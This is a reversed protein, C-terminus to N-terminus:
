ADEAEHLDKRKISALFVTWLFSCAAIFPVRNREPIFAFNITQIFPWFTLGVTYTQPFKLKVEQVAEGPTMGEALSMIYLFSVGAFPGYTGQEVIAKFLATRLNMTPWMITSIKVWGYVSPAVYLAGYIGYRVCQGYDFTDYRRGELSQQVLNATPWLISYTAIGRALPNSLRKILAM